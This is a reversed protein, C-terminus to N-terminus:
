IKPNKQVYNFSKRTDAKMKMKEPKKPKINATKHLITSISNPSVKIGKWSTQAAGLKRLLSWSERSSHTFDIENMAQTWRNRREEDLLAILKDANVENGDREYEKLLKECEKTWCPTYNHRHGRPVLKKAATKILNIFRSYNDPIPEIRNINDDVYKSYKPWAAKRINWRPMFHKDITPIILGITVTTPLHQSKPFPNKIEKHVTLPLGNPGESVFCLDPSTTTGWRGSKFTGVQKADYILKLHNIAAWDSLREGEVNDTSYGWETNHSNFDGIYIVPHESVPLVSDTWKSTPPKYVNFIILNGIRIGITHENGAM